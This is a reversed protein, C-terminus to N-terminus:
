KIIERTDKELYTEIKLTVKNPKSNTNSYIKLKSNLNSDLKWGCPERNLSIKSIKYPIVHFITTSQPLSLNFMGGQYPILFDKTHNFKKLLSKEKEKIKKLSEKKYKIKKKTNIKPDRSLM